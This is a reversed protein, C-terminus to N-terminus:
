GRSESVRLTEIMQAIAIRAYKDILVNGLQPM